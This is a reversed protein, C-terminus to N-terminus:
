RASSTWSATTRSRTTARRRWRATCSWSPRSWTQQAATPTPTTRWRRGCRGPTFLFVYEKESLVVVYFSTCNQQSADPTDKLTERVSGGTTLIDDVVAVRAGETFTTGRKFVREDSGESAREAYAAPLGIQRATEFALLIGGTTPGVVVDIREDRFRDAFHRCVESTAQPNRLLNFKEVYTDGHKGSAYLFHGKKLAGSAELQSLLDQDSM